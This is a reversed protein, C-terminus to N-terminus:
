QPLLFQDREAYAQKVENVTESDMGYPGSREDTSSTNFLVDSFMISEIDLTSVYPSGDENLDLFFQKKERKLWQVEVEINGDENNVLGKFLGIWPRSKKVKTYFVLSIDLKLDEVSFSSMETPYFTATLATERRSPCRQINEVITQQELSPTQPKLTEFKFPKFDEPKCTELFHIREKWNQKIENVDTENFKGELTPFYKKTVSKLIESYPSEERFQAVQLLRFDPKSNFLKIGSLFQWKEDLSSEKVFMKTVPVDENKLKEKKFKFQFFSTHGSILNLHPMILSSFDTTSKIEVIVPPVNDIKVLKLEAILSEFCPIEHKKLKSAMVSFFWDVDNHTHGVPMHSVLIEEFINLDVLTWYFALVFQNKLDKSCNDTQVALKKPLKKLKLQCFELVKMLVECTKNSDNPFQDNNIFSMITRDTEFGGNTAIVGCLHNTMKLLGSTDKTITPSFPSCIKAQDVDDLGSFCTYKLEM